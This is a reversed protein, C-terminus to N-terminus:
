SHCPLEKTFDLSENQGLIPTKNKQKVIQHDICLHTTKTPIQHPGIGSYIVPTSNMQFIKSVNGTSMPCKDM